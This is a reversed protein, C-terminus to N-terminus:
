AGNPPGLHRVLEEVVSRVGRGSTDIITAALGEYLPARIRLLSELTGRPDPNALLPRHGGRRTRQLQQDVTTRLYVVHGRSRLRERSDANLVAGGGTALVVGNRRSLADIVAAERVRFGQEGEKEFIEAIEVGTRARIEADSDIFELGLRKALRRGVSTKGSGMPGILFINNAATM